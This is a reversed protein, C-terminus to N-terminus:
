YDFEGFGRFMMGPCLMHIDLVMEDALVDLIGGDFQSIYRGIIFWCIAEGFCEIGRFKAMQDFIQAYRGLGNM